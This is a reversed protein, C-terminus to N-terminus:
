VHARGIQLPVGDNATFVGTPLVLNAPDIQQSSTPPKKPQKDRKKKRVDVNVGSQTASREKIHEQLETYTVWLFPKAKSNGLQKLAAWANGAALAKQLPQLVFSKLAAKARATYEWPPVGKSPLIQALTEIIAEEDAASGICNCPSHRHSCLAFGERLKELQQAQEYSIFGLLLACHGLAITGCSHSQHQAIERTSSIEVQTLNWQHKLTSAVRGYASISTM